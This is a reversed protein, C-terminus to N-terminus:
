PRVGVRNAAVKKATKVVAIKWLPCITTLRVRLQLTKMAHRMMLEVNLAWSTWAPKSECAHSETGYGFM